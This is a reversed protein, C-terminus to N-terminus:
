GSRLSCSWYPVIRMDRSGRLRAYILEEVQAQWGAVGRREDPIDGCNQAYHKLSLPDTEAAARQSLSREGARIILEINVGCIKGQM